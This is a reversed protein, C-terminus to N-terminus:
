RRPTSATGTTRGSGDRFTTMGNADITATGTTRGTGDRFTKTGNSDTTVTGTIRGNADRFTTSPQASATTAFMLFVLAAIVAATRVGSPPPPLVWGPPVWGSPVYPGYYGYPLVAGRSRTFLLCAETAAYAVERRGTQYGLQLATM